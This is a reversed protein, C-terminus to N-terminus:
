LWRYTALEVPGLTRQQGRRASLACLARCIHLCDVCVCLVIDLFCLRAYVLSPHSVQGAETKLSQEWFSLKRRASNCTHATMGAQEM